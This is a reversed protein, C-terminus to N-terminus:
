HIHLPVILNFGPAEYAPPPAYVLPPAYVYGQHYPHHHDYQGHGRHDRNRDGNHNRDHDDAFAVANMSMVLICLTFVAMVRNFKLNKVLMMLTIM